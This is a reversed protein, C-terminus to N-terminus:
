LKADVIELAQEIVDLGESLEEETILVAQSEREYGALEQILTRLLPVDGITAPRISLKTSEM